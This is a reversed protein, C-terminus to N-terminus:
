PLNAAPRETADVDVSERLDEIDGSFATVPTETLGAVLEALLDPNTITIRTVTAPNEEYDYVFTEVREVDAAEVGLSRHQTFLSCASLIVVAAAMVAVGLMRRTSRLEGSHQSM